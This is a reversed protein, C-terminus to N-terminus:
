QKSETVLTANIMQAIAAAWKAYEKESPHLGDQALLDRNGAAENSGNTIDAYKVAYENAIRRNSKNYAEIENSIQKQDRGSAAAFPTKSWDPISIVIVHNPMGGCFHLAKELLARCVPEYTEVTGGRYQDNVGILLTIFDYHDSIAAIDTAALLESATWGTKAIVKAHQFRLGSGRLLRVTQNPFNKGPLVGEGITYSDGLSLLTYQPKVKRFTQDM